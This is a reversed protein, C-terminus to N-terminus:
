LAPQMRLEIRTMAVASARTKLAHLEVSDEGAEGAEDSRAGSVMLRGAAGVCVGADVANTAVAGARGAM